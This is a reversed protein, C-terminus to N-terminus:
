IKLMRMDLSWAIGVAYETDACEIRRLIDRIEGRKARGAVSTDLRFNTCRPNCDPQLAAIASKTGAITRTECRWQGATGAAQDKLGMRVCSRLLDTLGDHLRTTKGSTRIGDIPRSPEVGIGSCKLEPGNGM